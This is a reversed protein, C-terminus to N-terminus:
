LFQCQKRVFEGENDACNEWIETLNRLHNIQQTTQPAMLTVTTHNEGRRRTGPLLPDFGAEQSAARCSFQM